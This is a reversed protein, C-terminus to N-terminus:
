TTLEYKYYYKLLPSSIFVTIWMLICLLGIKEINLEINLWLIADLLGIIDWRMWGVKGKLLM